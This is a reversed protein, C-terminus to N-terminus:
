KKTKVWADHFVYKIPKKIFSWVGGFSSSIIGRVKQVHHMQEKQAEDLESNAILMNDYTKEINKEVADIDGGQKTIM